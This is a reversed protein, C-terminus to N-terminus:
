DGRTWYLDEGTLNKEDIKKPRYSCRNDMVEIVSQYVM